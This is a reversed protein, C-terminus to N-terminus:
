AETAYESWLVDFDNDAEIDDIEAEDATVAWVGLNPEPPVEVTGAIDHISNVLHNDELAPHRTSADVWPGSIWANMLAM